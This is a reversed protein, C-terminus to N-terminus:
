SLVTSRIWQVLTMTKLPYKICDLWLNVAEGMHTYPHYFSFIISLLLHATIILLLMYWYGHCYLRGRLTDQQKIKKQRFSCILTERISIWTKLYSGKHKPAMILYVAAACCDTHHRLCSGHFWHASLEWPVLPCVAGMSGIPLYCRSPPYAQCLTM